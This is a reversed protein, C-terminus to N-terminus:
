SDPPPQNDKVFFPINHGPPPQNDKVFFEQQCLLESGGEQHFRQHLREMQSGQSEAIAESAAVAFLTTVVQSMAVPVNGPTTRFLTCPPGRWFNEERYRRPAGAACHGERTLSVGDTTPSVGAQIRSCSEESQDSYFTAM